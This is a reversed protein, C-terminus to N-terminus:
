LHVRNLQNTDTKSTSQNTMTLLTYITSGAMCGPKWGPVDCVSRGGGEEASGRKM